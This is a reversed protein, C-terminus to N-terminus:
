WFINKSYFLRGVDLTWCKKIIRDNEGNLPHISEQLQYKTAGSTNKM